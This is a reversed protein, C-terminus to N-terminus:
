KGGVTAKKPRRERMAQTFKPNGENLRVNRPMLEVDWYLSEDLEGKDILVQDEEPIEYAVDYSSVNGEADRHAKTIYGAFWGKKGGISKESKSVSGNRFYGVDHEFSRNCTLVLSFLNNRTSVCKGDIKNAPIRFKKYNCEGKEPVVMSAFDMEQQELAIYNSKTRTM